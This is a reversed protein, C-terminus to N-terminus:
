DRIFVSAEKIEKLVKELHIIVFELRLIRAERGGTTDTQKEIKEIKNELTEIKAEIIEVARKM